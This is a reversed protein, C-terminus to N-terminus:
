HSPPPAALFSSAGLSAAVGMALVATLTSGRAVLGRADREVAVSFSRSAYLPGLAPDDVLRRSGQYLRLFPLLSTQDVHQSVVVASSDLAAAAQLDRLSDTRERAAELTAASGALLVTDGDRLAVISSAGLAARFRLLLADARDRDRVSLALLWSAAGPGLAAAQGLSAVDAALLAHGGFAAGLAAVTVGLAAELKRQGDAIWARGAADAPPALAALGGALERLNLSGRQASWGSRPEYRSFSARGAPEFLQELVRLGAPSAHLRGGARTGDALLAVGPFLGGHHALSAHLSAQGPAALRALAEAAGLAGYAAFGGGRQGTTLGSVTRRYDSANALAPGGGSCFTDFAGRPAALTIATYAGRRGVMIPAAVRGALWARLRDLDTVGVLVIGQVVRADLVFALGVDPDVGISQWGARALPDFGLVLVRGAPQLLAALEPVGALAPAVTGLLATLRGPLDPVELAVLLATPAAELSQAVRPGGPAVRGRAGLVAVVIVAIGLGGLALLV